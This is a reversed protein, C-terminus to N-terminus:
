RNSSRYTFVTYSSTSQAEQQNITLVLLKFCVEVFFNYLRTYSYIESVVNENDVISSNIFM